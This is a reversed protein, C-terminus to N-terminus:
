AILQLTCVTMGLYLNYFVIQHMVTHIYLITIIHHMCIHMNHMYIYTNYIIIYVAYSSVNSLANHPLVCFFVSQCILIPLKSLIIESIHKFKYCPTSNIHAHQVMFVKENDTITCTTCYIHFRFCM